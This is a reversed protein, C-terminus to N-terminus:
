LVIISYVLQDFSESVAKLQSSNSSPLSACISKLSERIRKEEESAVANREVVLTENM